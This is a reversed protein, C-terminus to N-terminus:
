GNEYLKRLMGLSVRLSDNDTVLGVEEDLRITVERAQEPTLRNEILRELLETLEARSNINKNM